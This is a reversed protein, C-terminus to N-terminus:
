RQRYSERNRFSSHIPVGQERSFAEAFRHVAAGFEAAAGEVLVVVADDEGAGEAAQPALSLHVRYRAVVVDMGAQGVGQFHGADAARQAHADTFDEAIAQRFPAVRPVHADYHLGCAEGVVDTVRGEAMGALIGDAVPELLGGPAAPQIPHAFLLAGVEQVELCRWAEADERM